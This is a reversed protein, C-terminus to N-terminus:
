NIKIIYINGMEDKEISFIEEEAPFERGAKEYMEKAEEILTKNSKTTVKKNTSCSTIAAFLVFCFALAMLWPLIMKIPKM